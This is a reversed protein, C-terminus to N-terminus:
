EEDSTEEFNKKAKAEPEQEEEDDDDADATAALSRAAGSYDPRAIKEGKESLAAEIHPILKVLTNFQEIPLSIGQRGLSLSLPLILVM